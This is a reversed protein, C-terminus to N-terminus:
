EEGGDEEGCGEERACGEQCARDEGGVEERTRGQDHGEERPGERGGDEELGADEERGLGVRRGSDLRGSPVGGQARRLRGQRGAVPEHHTGHPVKRPNTPAGFPTRTTTVNHDGHRRLTYGMVSVSLAPVGTPGSASAVRGRPSM